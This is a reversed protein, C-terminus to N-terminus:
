QGVLRRAAAGFEARLAAPLAAAGAFGLAGALVSRRGIATSM